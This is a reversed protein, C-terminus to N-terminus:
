ESEDNNIENDVVSDVISISSVKQGERLNILKVGQTVRSMESIGDVSLRIIIGEDTIIILDKTDDVTKFSTIPGNKETINLTKVGKGGRNTIRYEEIPTKKGYGNETVVLVLAGPSAIEMGVLYSDELLIGRVGSANRGMVRVLTEPFRVMRGNSSAMLIDSSGNTNKVSILEDDDKLTIFRKGNARINYFESVETRKILGSKTAFVLYKCDGDSSGNLLSTVYEGQEMNLLNVIPLGKSQRSYEPIEYGKVRYVKGNNTFFLVYDHTSCNLIQEVFDEENISMGKIGVGGRNQTKYTDVPLRKIYGKKTLTIVINEEPILSEDEIYDVATM